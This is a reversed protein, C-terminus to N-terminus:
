PKAVSSISAIQFGHLFLFVLTLVELICLSSKDVEGSPCFISESETAGDLVGKPLPLINFDTDCSGLM